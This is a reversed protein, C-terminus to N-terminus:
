FCYRKGLRDNHQAPTLPGIHQRIMKGDPTFAQPDLPFPWLRKPRENAAKLEARDRSYGSSTGVAVWRSAKDCTGAYAAPDTFSDDMLSISNM